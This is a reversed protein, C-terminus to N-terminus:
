AVRQIRPHPDFDQFNVQFPAGNKLPTRDVSTNGSTARGQEGLDRGQQALDSFMQRVATDSAAM